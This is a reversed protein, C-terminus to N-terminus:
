HEHKQDKKEPANKERESHIGEEFSLSRTQIYVCLFCFGLFTTTTTALFRKKKTKTKKKKWFLAKRAYNTHTDKKIKLACKKKRKKKSEKKREKELPLNKKHREGM